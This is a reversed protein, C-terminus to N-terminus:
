YAEYKAIRASIQSDCALQNRVLAWNRYYGGEWKRFLETIRLYLVKKLAQESPFAGKKTVKRFSSNVAKVANTTYMAQRIASGYDFLQEIHSFNREWVAVGGPYKEAWTNKFRDFEARCTELSAAGYVRKISACFAKMDKNPVYKVSNRVLHVICRQCTVDPFISRAGEELGSLGDMSIFLVDEVGRAKIEDFIQMWYHKGEGDAIWLGLIDKHGDMDYALITYVACNRPGGDHKVTVFMCDVFLFPYLPKLPRSQWHMLEELVRDTIKSIIDASMSFGYIEDITQSIDRQSMGRAYMALVKGEIESVDKKGKPIIAPKFSADRDRPVDITVDGKTTRLTKKSYGNRRNEGDKPCRENNEYGLHDDLEASLMTEFLPGFIDKLADEMDRASKPDYEKLIRKALDISEPSRKERALIAEPNVQYTQM